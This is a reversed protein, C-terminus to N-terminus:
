RRLNIIRNDADLTKGAQQKETIWMARIQQIGPFIDFLKVTIASLTVLSDCSFQYSASIESHGEEHEYDDAEAEDKHLKHDSDLVASVDISSGKVSCRGGSFSFLSDPKGLLSLTNEVAAIDNKKSAKHEFGLLNMAPSKLEIELTKGEMALTLESLGHVHADLGIHQERPKEAYILPSSLVFILAIIKMLVSVLM